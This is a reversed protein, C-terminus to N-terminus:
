AATTDTATADTATEEAAPAPADPVIDDLAQAMSELRALSAEADTPLEGAAARLTAIENLIEGSAKGLKDSVADIKAALQTVNTMIKGLLLEQRKLRDIVAQCHCGRDLQKGKGAIKEFIQIIM